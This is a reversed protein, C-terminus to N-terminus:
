RGKKRPNFWRRVGRQSTTEPRNSGGKQHSELLDRQLVVIDLSPRYLHCFDRSHSIVSAPAESSTWFVVQTLRELATAVEKRGMQSGLYWGQWPWRLQFARDLDAREPAATGPRWPPPAPILPTGEILVPQFREFSYDSRDYLRPHLTLSLAALGADLDVWGGGPGFQESAWKGMQGAMRDVSEYPFLAIVGFCRQLTVPPREKASWWERLRAADIEGRWIDAIERLRDLAPHEFQESVWLVVGAKVLRGRHNLLWDLAEPFDVVKEGVLLADAEDIRQFAEAWTGVGVVEAPAEELLFSDLGAHGSVVIRM